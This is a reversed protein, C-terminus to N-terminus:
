GMRYLAELAVLIENKEGQAAADAGDKYSAVGEKIDKKWEVVVNLIGATRIGRVAGVAFLAATEMDSAYM